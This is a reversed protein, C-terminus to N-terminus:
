GNYSATVYVLTLPTGGNYTTATFYSIGNLFQVAHLPLQIQQNKNIVFVAKPTTAGATVGAAPLDYIAVYALANNDNTISLSHLSGANGKIQRVTNGSDFSIIQTPNEWSTISSTNHSLVLAGSADCLVNKPTGDSAQILVCQGSIDVSSTTKSLPSTLVYQGSIDVSSTTKSLPSTLVYQGSIDVSSTTKSLPSTLVYQGSIDVSDTTKNLAPQSSISVASGTADVKDTSFTLAPQTAVAINSTLYSLFPASSVAVTGTIAPMTSVAVNDTLYSLHPQSSVAVTGSIAPMTSVAVNDTLYSLYGTGSRGTVTVDQVGSIDITGGAITVSDRASNLSRIDLNIFHTEQLVTTINTFTMTAGLNEVKISFFSSKVPTQIIGKTNAAVNEENSHMLTSAANQRYQKIIVKVESSCFTSVSISVGGTTVEIGGEFSAGSALVVYSNNAISQIVM